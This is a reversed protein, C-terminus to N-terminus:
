ALIKINRNRHKKSKNHRTKHIITSTKGCDCIYTAKNMELITKKNDNYYQKHKENLIDLNDQRYQKQYEVIDKRHEEYHKKQYEIIHERHEEYHKKKYETILQKNYLSYEKANEAIIEKNDVRWENITRGAIVKNVCININIRITLGEQLLLQQKNNFNCDEILTIFADGLKIIEFSSVYPKTKDKLYMKYNGMHGAMRQSLAQCTSGIYIKDTLSSSIKYIRSNNYKNYEVAM